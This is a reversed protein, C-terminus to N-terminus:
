KIMNEKEIESIEKEIREIEKKIDVDEVSNVVFELRDYIKNRKVYGKFIFDKGLSKHLEKFVNINSEFAEKASIGLIKEANERFIVIRMNGTGDDVVGSIVLMPERKKHIECEEKVVENCEPCIFFFPNIDFVQVLCARISAYKGEELESIDYRTYEREIKEIEDISPLKEADEGTVLEIEGRSVRLEPFGFNDRVYADVIRVVDGKSFGRFKKIEDDWLVVRIVGTEDGIFFSLLKGEGREDNEDRQFTKVDSVETIRGVVNINKMGAVINGIKIDYSKRKILSIGLDKALIYAAGEDSILNSLERKKEEIRKLIEERKMGTTAEIKELIEELTYM